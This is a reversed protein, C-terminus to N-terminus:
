RKKSFFIRSFAKDKGTKKKKLFVLSKKTKKKVNKEIKKSNKVKCIDCGINICIYLVIMFFHHKFDKLM